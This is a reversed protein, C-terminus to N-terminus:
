GNIGWELLVVGVGPADGSAHYRFEQSVLATQSNVKSSEAKAVQLWATNEGLVFPIQGPCLCFFLALWFRFMLIATFAYRM